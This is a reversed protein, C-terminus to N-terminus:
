IAHHCKCPNKPLLLFCIDKRPPLIQLHSVLMSKDGHEDLHTHQTLPSLLLGPATESCIVTSRQELSLVAPAALHGSSLHWKDGRRSLM